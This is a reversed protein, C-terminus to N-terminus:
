ASGVALGRDQRPHRREAIDVVALPIQRGYVVRSQSQRGRDIGRLALRQQRLEDDGEPVILTMGDRLGCGLGELERALEAPQEVLQRDFPHAEVLQLIEYGAIEGFVPLAGEGEEVDDARRPRRHQGFSSLDVGDVPTGQRDAGLRRAPLCCWGRRRHNGGTRGTRLRRRSRQQADDGLHGLAGDDQRAEIALHVLFAPLLEVGRMRLVAQVFEEAGQSHCTRRDRVPRAALAAVLRSPLQNGLQHSRRLGALGPRSWVGRCEVVDGTGVAGSRVLLGDHNRQRHALREVLGAARGGQDGGVALQRAPHRGFESAPVDLDVVRGACRQGIGRGGRQQAGQGGRDIAAEAGDIQQRQQFM